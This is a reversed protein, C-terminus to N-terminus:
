NTLSEFESWFEDEAPSGLTPPELGLVGLRRSAALEVDAQLDPDLVFARGGAIESLSVVTVYRFRRPVADTWSGQGVLALFHGSSRTSRPEPISDASVWFMGRAGGRRALSLNIFGSVEYGFDFTVWTGLPASHQPESPLFRWPGDGDGVRASVAPLPRRSLVQDTLLPRRVVARPLGWRGTPPRGWVRVPTASELVRGPWKLEERYEPVVRWSSDSLVIPEDGRALRLVMGGMGRSSRLEVLLRNDGELLLDTVDFADIPSGSQFSGSGVVEGNLFVVYEEDATLTLFVGSTPVTELAFDRVAFFSTWGDQPEVEAWIWEAQGTVAAWQAM